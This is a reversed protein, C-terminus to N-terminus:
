NFLKVVVKVAQVLADIDDRTNYFSFSARATAPLGFRQMIPQACHHGARLAIGERDLITGIDHPHAGQLVFSLIGAKEPATGILRVEPIELMRATAYTLLENEYAGIRDLGIATVYDVATGLAIVEAIAPTGAEFKAPPKAFTTKEFSVSYIMDGGFQYPPMAELHKMKGYLVGVGTPGYLKHGSFAFFDCDLAQLDVAMHPASQAGDVLVPINLAHAKEIIAKIPNVTGLANSVHGIAVFKVKDTLLRDFEAMDLEGADTIPAVQLTAGKELCLQQWPVLNAHHEMASILIEDGAQIFTRGYTAAVLNIAETTGRTFIIESPSAANLMQAVKVRTADFDRTSQESLKYVGRRVTGNEHAYYNTIRDIVVQPKQTTAANDLYVLPKGHVQQRLVPFDERLRLAEAETLPSIVPPVPSSSIEDLVPQAM